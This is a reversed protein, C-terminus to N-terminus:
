AAGESGDLRAIAAPPRVFSVVNSPQQTPKTKRPRPPGAPRRKRSRKLVVEDGAYCQQLLKSLVRVAEALGEKRRRDRATDGTSESLVETTADLGCLIESTHIRLWDYMGPVYAYIGLMPPQNTQDTM